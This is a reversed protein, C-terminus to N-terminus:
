PSGLAARVRISGLEVGAGSRVSDLTVDASRAPMAGEGPAGVIRIAYPGLAEIQTSPDQDETAYPLLLEFRGEPTPRARTRYSFRRGTTQAQLELQAEVEFAGPASGVLRAGKVFEFIKVSPVEIGDYAEGWITDTSDGRRSARRLEERDSERDIPFARRRFVDKPEGARYISAIWSHHPSEYVMRLQGIGSADQFFLRAIV